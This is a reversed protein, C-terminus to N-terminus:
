QRKWPLKGRVRHTRARTRHEHGPRGAPRGGDASGRGRVDHRAQDRRPRHVRRAPCGGARSAPSSPSTDRAGRSCTASPPAPPTPCASCTSTTESTCVGLDGGFVGSVDLSGGAAADVRLRLMRYVRQREEPALDDLAAPLEGAFSALLTEKDLELQAVREARDRVARLEREAVKRTDELDALKEGLEELTIFGEAAMEQFASRKHDAQSLKDLWAKAVSKPRRAFGRTGARDIENLGARLRDPHKLLDSVFNWVRAELAEARHSRNRCSDKHDRIKRQCVYYFYRRLKGGRTTFMPHPTMRRGCEGCHLTGGSLEWYRRGASSSRTNNAIAERAADVWEAAPL